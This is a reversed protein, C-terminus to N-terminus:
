MGRPRPEGEDQCMQIRGMAWSQAWISIPWSSNGSGRPLFYGEWTRSPVFLRRMGQDREVEWLLKRSQWLKNAGIAIFIKPVSSDGTRKQIGEMISLLTGWCMFSEQYTNTSNIFWTFWSFDWCGSKIKGKMKCQSVQNWSSAVRSDTELLLKVVPENTKPIYQIHYSVSMHNESLNWKLTPPHKKKIVQIRHVWGNIGCRPM